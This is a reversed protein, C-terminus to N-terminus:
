GLLSLLAGLYIYVKLIRGNTLPESAENGNLILATWVLKITALVAKTWPPGTPSHPIRVYLTTVGRLHYVLGVLHSQCWLVKWWGHKWKPFLMPIACWLGTALIKLIPTVHIHAHWYAHMVEYVHLVPPTQPCAGWPCKQIKISQSQKQPAQNQMTTHSWAAWNGSM